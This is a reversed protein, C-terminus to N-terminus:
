LFETFEEPLVEFFDLHDTRSDITGQLTTLYAEFPVLEVVPATSSIM